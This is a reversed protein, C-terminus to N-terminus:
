TNFHQTQTVRAETNLTQPAVPNVNSTPLKDTVTIGVDQFCQPKLGMLVSERSSSSEKKGM